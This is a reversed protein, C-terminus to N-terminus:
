ATCPTQTRRWWKRSILILFGACTASSTPQGQAWNASESPILQLEPATMVDKSIGMTVLPYGYIYTQVAHFVRLWHPVSAVLWVLIVALLAIAIRKGNMTKTKSAKVRTM